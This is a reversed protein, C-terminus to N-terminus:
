KNEKVVVDVTATTDTTDSSTRQIISKNRSHHGDKQLTKHHHGLASTCLLVSMILFLMIIRM